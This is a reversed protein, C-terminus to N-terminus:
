RLDFPRPLAQASIVSPRKEPPVEPREIPWTEGSAASPPASRAPPPLRGCRSRCERVPADVQRDAVALHGLAACRHLRPSSAHFGASRAPALHRRRQLGIGRMVVLAARPATRRTRHAVFITMRLHSGVPGARLPRGSSLSRSGRLISARRHTRRPGGAAAVELIVLAAISEAAIQDVVRDARPGGRLVDRDETFKLRRGKIQTLAQSTSVVSYLLIDDRLVM